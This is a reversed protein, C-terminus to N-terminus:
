KLQRRTRLRFLVAFSAMFAVIGASRAWWSSWDSVPLAFVVVKRQNGDDADHVLYNGKTSIKINNVEPGAFTVSGIERHLVFDRFVLEVSTSTLFRQLGPIKDGIWNSWDLPLLQNTRLLAFQNSRPVLRPKYPYGGQRYLKEGSHTELVQTHAQESVERTWMRQSDWETSLLRITNPTLGSAADHVEEDGIALWRGSPLHCYAMSSEASLRGLFGEDLRWKLAAQQRREKAQRKMPESEERLNVEILNPGIETEIWNITGPHDAIQAVLRGSTSDFISLGRPKLTMPSSLAKEPSFVPWIGTNAFIILLGNNSLRPAGAGYPSPMVFRAQLQNSPLAFVQCFCPGLRNIDNREDLALLSNLVTAWNTPPLFSPFLPTTPRMALLTAGDKSLALSGDSPTKMLQRENNLLNWRCLKYKNEDHETLGAPVLFLNGEGDALPDVKDSDYWPSYDVPSHLREEITEQHSVILRGTSLERVETTISQSSPYSPRQVLLFHEDRDLPQAL